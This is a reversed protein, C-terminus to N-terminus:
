GREAPEGTGAAQVVYEWTTESGGATWSVTAETASTATASLDSPAPCTPTEEITFDDIAIDGTYDTSRSGTIKFRIVESMYSSLDATATLWDDSSSSQQQGSISVLSTETGDSEVVYLNLDGITAGYMHYDFAIRPFAMLSVDYYPTMLTAIDGVSGESTEIYLYVDTASGDTSGASPGTSGSPTGAVDNVWDLNGNTTYWSVSSNGGVGWTYNGTTFGSFTETSAGTIKNATTFTTSIATTSESGCMSTLEFTYLQNDSLGSLDLSTTTTSGSDVATSTTDTGEYVNYNFNDNGNGADWSISAGGIVFDHDNSFFVKFCKM